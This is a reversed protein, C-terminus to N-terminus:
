YYLQGQCVLLTVFYIPLCPLLIIFPESSPTYCESNSPKQVRDMLQYELFWFVCCRFGPRNGDKPSTLPVGLRNPGKPLGVEIVFDLFGIIRLIAFTRHMVYVFWHFALTSRLHSLHLLYSFHFLLGQM